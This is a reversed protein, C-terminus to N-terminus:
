HLLMLLIVLFRMGKRYPELGMLDVTLIRDQICRILARPFAAMPQKVRSSIRDDVEVSKVPIFRPM